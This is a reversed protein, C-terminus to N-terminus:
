DKKIQTLITEDIGISKLYDLKYPVLTGTQKINTAAEIYENSYPLSQGTIPDVPLSLIM